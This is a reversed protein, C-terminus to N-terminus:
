SKNPKNKDSLANLGNVFQNVLADIKAQKAAQRRVEKEFQDVRTQNLRRTSGTEISSIRKASQVIRAINTSTIFVSIKPIEPGSRAVNNQTSSDEKNNKQQQNNTPTTM